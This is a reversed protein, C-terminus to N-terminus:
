QITCHSTLWGKKEEPLDISLMGYAYGHIVAALDKIEITNTIEQLAAQKEKNYRADEERLEDYWSQAKNRFMGAATKSVYLTVGDFTLSRTKEGGLNITSQSLLANIDPYQDLVTKINTLDDLALLFLQRMAKEQEETLVKTMQAANGTTCIALCFLAILIKM